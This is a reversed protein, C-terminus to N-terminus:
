PLWRRLWASWRWARSARIRALEVTDREFAPLRAVVERHAEGLAGLQLERDTLQDATWARSQEAARARAAEFRLQANAIQLDRRTSEYQPTDMRLDALTAQADAMAHPRAYICLVQEGPWASNPWDAVDLAAAHVLVWGNRAAPLAEPAFAVFHEPHLEHERYPLLLVVFREARAAIADFAAWPKRFHELTNSSFAIDCPEDVADEAGPLAFLDGVRFRLQPHRVQARAIAESSFDVGLTEVGLADALVRTGSGEACGWDCLTSRHGASRTRAICTKFWAPMAELAVHAFFRSQAEGGLSAWDTRFRHDWYAHSNVPPVFLDQSRSRSRRRGPYL